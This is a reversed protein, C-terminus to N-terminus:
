FNPDQPHPKGAGTEVYDKLSVGLFFGWKCNCHRYFNDMEAWGVHSFNIAAGREIPEIDFSFEGTNEWPGLQCQWVVKQDPVLEKVEMDVQHEGNPGFLFSAIGGVQEQANAKTWWGSLGAPTTLAQYVTAPNADVEIRHLIANM